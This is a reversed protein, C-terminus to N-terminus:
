AVVDLVQNKWHAIGPIRGSFQVTKPDFMSDDATPSPASGLSPQAGPPALSSPRVLHKHLEARLSLLGWAYLVDAYNRIYMDYKEDADLPLLYSRGEVDPGQGLRRASRRGGSLVCAMTALMQYDGLSEYYTLLNSVLDVGLAGGGSGGWGNFSQKGTEEVQREATQALFEWVGQKESEDLSACVSANHLCLRKIENLERFQGENESTGPVRLTYVGLKAQPGIKWSRGVGEQVAAISQSTARNKPSGKKFLSHPSDPPSLLTSFTLAGGEHQHTFMNKFFKMSEEVNPRVVDPIVIPRGHRSIDPSQTDHFKKRFRVQLNGDSKTRTLKKDNRKPLGGAKSPDQLYRYHPLGVFVNSEDPDTKEEQVDEEVAFFDQLESSETFWPGLEWGKALEISQHSLIDKDYKHVLSVVPALMDSSPGPLNRIKRIPPAPQNTKSPSHSTAPDSMELTGKKFQSGGFYRKYMDDAPPPAPLGDDDEDSSNSAMSEYEFFNDGDSISDASDSEDSANEGGWQAEKAASTMNVLDKLTRPGGRPAVNGLVDDGQGPISDVPGTDPGKHVSNVEVKGMSLGPERFTGMRQYWSWMKGVEGNNFVVLGGNGKGFVAGCLRPCPIRETEIREMISTAPVPESATPNSEELVGGLGTATVTAGTTIDTIGIQPNAVNDAKVSGYAVPVEMDFPMTGGDGADRGSTGLTDEHKDVKTPSAPLPRREETHNLGTDAPGIRTSGWFSAADNLSTGEKAESYVRAQNSAPFATRLLSAKRSLSPAEGGFTNGDSTAEPLAYTTIVGTDSLCCLLVELDEKRADGTHERSASAFALEAAQLNGLRTRTGLVNQLAKKDANASADGGQFGAEKKLGFSLLNLPDLERPSSSSEKDISYLESWWGTVKESDDPNKTTDDTLHGLAMIKYSDSASCVRACALNPRVCQGTMRYENTAGWTRPAPSQTDDDHPSITSSQSDQLANGKTWIKVVATSIPSDLGWTVWRSFQPDALSGSSSAQGLYSLGVGATEHASFTSRPSGHRLRDMMRIDYIHVIGDSNITACEDTDSSCAVQVLSSNQGPLAGSRSTAFRVAPQFSASSARLDWLSLTSATTAALLPVSASATGPKWSISTIREPPTLSPADMQDMGVRGVLPNPSHGSADWVMVGSGRTAALYLSSPSVPPDNKPEFALSSISNKAVTSTAHSLILLPVHPRSLRFLAVGQVGAVAGLSSPGSHPNRWKSATAQQSDFNDDASSALVSSCALAQPFFSQYRAISRLRRVPATAEVVGPAAEDLDLDPPNGNSLGKHEPSPPLQTMSANRQVQQSDTADNM